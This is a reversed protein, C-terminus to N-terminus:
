RQALDSIDFHMEFLIVDPSPRRSSYLDVTANSSRERATENLFGLAALRMPESYDDADRVAIWARRPHAEDPEVLWRGVNYISSALTLVLKLNRTYGAIVSAEDRPQDAVSQRWRSIFSLQQYLGADMLRRANMAGREVFYAPDGGGEVDGLLQLLRTYSVMPYWAATNVKDELLALEPPELRAQLEDDDIRGEDRLRVTDEIVGELISGKVCPKTM